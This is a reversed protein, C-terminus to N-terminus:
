SVPERKIRRPLGPPESPKAALKSMRRFHAARDHFTQQWIELSLLGWLKRGYRPERELGNLVARNDILERERATRGSLTDRVFDGLEGDLWEAFPVPFGMKDKREVIARPLRPATAARLIYKGEGNRFKMTSPITAAFEVLPHDLFPVRSELGHAMSVRDEVHLLAPLLTKFDFHTMRDFYSQRAVNEAAFVKQFTEFPSYGRLADWRVEAGLATARNILRFYRADPPGFLGDRWFEQLLPRYERLTSLGPLISEYTLDGGTDRGDIAAGLCQEFSAILYRVYGGFIEDAGQGGLMVKRRRAAFRSVMYQPFSGPGAVPYDLHEIIKGINAVFDAQTIDIEHLAFGKEKAVTRAHRSEDFAEGLSFKGVFAEFSADSAALAAIISSDLGGSLYGGIPVDSRRHLRVSEDLLEALRTRFYEESHDFDLAYQVQWYRQVRVGGNAAVLTHGPPLEDVDRFLTKGELCFQFTLYDALGALDTAIDRLFPLLAKVESAFYLVDGNRTYYFPKIGFRDRACFLEQRSEDWLAFAFMGRLHQVCERGWRRYAHLIVETDSRSQFNEEGLQQRLELYNYIEGNFVLQNGAPDSMPQAGGALDIISLRRHALGVHGRAHHWAGVGDPGRHAQLQNM